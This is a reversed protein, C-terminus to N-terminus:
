GQEGQGEDSVRHVIGHETIAHRYIALGEALDGDGGIIGDLLFVAPGFEQEIRGLGLGANM